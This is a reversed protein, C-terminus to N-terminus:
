GVGECLTLPRSRAFGLVGSLLPLHGPLRPALWSESGLRVVEGGPVDGECLLGGDCGGDFVPVAMEYPGNTFPGLVAFSAFRGECFSLSKRVWGDECGVGVVLGGGDGGVFGREGLPGPHPPLPPLASGCVGKTAYPPAIRFRAPSARPATAQGIALDPECGGWWCVGEGAPRSLAPTLALPPAFRSGWGGGCGARVTPATRSRGLCRSPLSACRRLFLSEGFLFWGGDWGGSWWGFGGDVVLLVGEGARRSLAPTLALPLSPGSPSGWGGGCGPAFGWVVVLLIGLIGCQIGGM